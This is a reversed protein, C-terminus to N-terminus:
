PALTRSSSSARTPVSGTSRMCGRAWDVVTEVDDDTPAFRARAEEFTLFHHFQPSHPDAIADGTARLEAVDRPRFALTLRISLSPDVPQVRQALGSSVV